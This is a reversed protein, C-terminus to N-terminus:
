WEKCTASVVALSSCFNSDPYCLSLRVLYIEQKLFFFHVVPISSLSLVPFGSMWYLAKEMKRRLLDRAIESGSYEQLMNTDDVM